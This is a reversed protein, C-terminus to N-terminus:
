GTFVGKSILISLCKFYVETGRLHRPPLHPNKEGSGGGKAVFCIARPKKIQEENIKSLFSALKTRGQCVFEPCALIHISFIKPLSKEAVYLKKREPNTIHMCTHTCVKAHMPPMHIHTHMCMYTCPKQMYQLYIHPPTCARTHAHKQMYQPCRHTTHMCTSVQPQYQTEDEM